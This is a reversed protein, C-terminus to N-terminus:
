RPMRTLTPHANLRGDVCVPWRHQARRPFSKSTCFSLHFCLVCHDNQIFASKAVNRGRQHATLVFKAHQPVIGDVHPQDCDQALCVTASAPHALITQECDTELGLDLGLTLRTIPM